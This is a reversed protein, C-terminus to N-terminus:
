KTMIILVEDNEVTTNFPIVICKIKNWTFIFWVEYIFVYIINYHNAQKKLKCYVHGYKALNEYRLVHYITCYIGLLDM